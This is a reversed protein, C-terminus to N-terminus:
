SIRGLISSRFLLPAPPYPLSQVNRGLSLDISTYIGFPLSLSKKLHNKNKEIIALKCCETLKRSYLSGTGRVYICEKKKYQLMIIHSFLICIHVTVWDWTCIHM